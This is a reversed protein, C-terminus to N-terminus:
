FMATLIGGAERPMYCEATYFHASITEKEGENNVNVNNICVTYLSNGYQVYQQLVAIMVTFIDM